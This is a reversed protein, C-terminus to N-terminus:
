KGTFPVGYEIDLSTLEERGPLLEYQLIMKMSWCKSLLHLKTLAKLCPAPLNSRVYVHKNKLIERLPRKLIVIHLGFPTDCSNYLRREFVTNSDFFVRASTVPAREIERWINLLHGFSPGEVFVFCSLGNDIVFGTLTDRHALIEEMFSSALAKDTVVCFLRKFTDPIRHLVLPAAQPALLYAELTLSAGNRLLLSETLINAPATDMVLNIENLSSYGRGKEQPLDYFKMFTTNSPVHLQGQEKFQWVNDLLSSLDFSCVAVMIETERDAEEAGICAWEGKSIQAINADNRDGGFVADSRKAANGTKVAGIEVVLRKSYLFELLKIKPLGHTFYIRSDNLFISRQIPIPATKCEAIAPISYRCYLARYPTNELRESPFNEISKLKVVLPNLSVKQDTTLLNGVTIIMIFKSIPHETDEAKFIAREPDTLLVEGTITVVLRNYKEDRMTAAKNYKMVPVHLEGSEFNVIDHLYENDKEYYKLVAEDETLNQNMKTDEEFVEVFGENVRAFNELVEDVPPTDDVFIAIELVRQKLITLEEVSLQKVSHKVCIPIWVLQNKRVTTLFKACNPTWVKVIGGYCDFSVSYRRKEPILEYDIRGRTNEGADCHAILFKVDVTTM